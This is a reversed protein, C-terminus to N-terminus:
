VLGGSRHFGAAIRWAIEGRYFSEVSNERALTELLAALDPNRFRMGRKLPSGYPLLLRASAPDRLLQPRSGRVAAALGASVEFGDRAYALAPQVVRGFPW